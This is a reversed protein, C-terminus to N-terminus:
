PVQWCGSRGTGTSLRSTVLGCELSWPVSPLIDAASATALPDLELDMWGPIRLLADPTTVLSPTPSSQEAPSAALMSGGMVTFFLVACLMGLVGTFVFTFSLQGLVGLFFFTADVMLDACFLFAGGFSSNPISDFLFDASSTWSWFLGLGKIALMGAATRWVGTLCLIGQMSGLVGLFFFLLLDTLLLTTQLWDSRLTLLNKTGVASM